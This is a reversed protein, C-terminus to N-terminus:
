WVNTNVNKKIITSKCLETLEQQVVNTNNNVTIRKELSTGQHKSFAATDGQRRQKGEAQSVQLCLRFLWQFSVPM